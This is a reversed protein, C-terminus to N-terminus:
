NIEAGDRVMGWLLKRNLAESRTLFHYALVCEPAPM